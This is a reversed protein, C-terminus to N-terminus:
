HNWSFEPSNFLSWVLDEVLKTRKEKSEAFQKQFWASEAPTPLRTLCVLYCVQIRTLDSGALGAIRGSASLVNPEILERSLKGNMRLLAQPITGAQEELEDTGLDGYENVFDRERFFRITRVLLNSNRDITKISAAQLMSGIVQEPRLRTLPFLAWEAELQERTQVAQDSASALRFPASATITRILHRLDYDHERFDAGLVDLLDPEDPSPPDPLDDVARGPYWPRGFLLAWVRNVTAREFRRNEPHTIWAALRERRTGTDPLWEAHFPVTPAITMATKTEPGEITFEQKPKDQLGVITVRAQGFFAALGRFQKQTWDSFFDDHCQACDIRQGLFARSARGTLTYEDIDGEMTASTVFNTAPEGTWLGKASVVERVIEDYPTGDALEDSLWEVFRGRRFVIFPGQETGVYSRALREAFYDAFRRDALLRDTWRRLREPQNDAQFARIEELSPITGHLALALRRLVQLDDAPPAPQLNHQQWRSEFYRDVRVVTANEPASKPVSRRADLPPNHAAWVVASVVSAGLVIPVILSRRRSKASSETTTADDSVFQKGTPPM